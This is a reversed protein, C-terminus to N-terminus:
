PCSRSVYLIPAGSEAALGAAPMQNAQPANSPVIIVQKAARGTPTLALIAAATSAPDAGAVSLTRLGAPPAAATGIRIVQTAGLSAAGRPHLAALTLRTVEPLEGGHSYLLPANLPSGALSAAALAGLWDGEDALVVVQPRSAPTLGPYVAQAVAAADTAPDPGGLRTTNRTALSVSGQVVVPALDRATTSTPTRQPSSKGCAALLFAALAAVVISLGRLGEARM